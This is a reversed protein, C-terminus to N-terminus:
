VVKLLALLAVAVVEGATRRPTGAEGAVLLSRGGAVGAMARWRRGARVLGVVVVAGLAVHLGGVVGVHAVDEVHLAVHHGGSLHDEAGLRPREGREVAGAAVVDG